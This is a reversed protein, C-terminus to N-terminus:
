TLKLYTSYPEDQIYIFPVLSLEDGSGISVTWTPRDTQDSRKAALLQEKTLKPQEETLAFLVLPGYMLAVVNPRQADVAELRLSTPLTVEVQDGNNWVREVKAFTGAAVTQTQEDNVKITANDAWPPIRFSLRFNAPDETRVVFRATSAVPYETCQEIKVLKGNQQWSAKSNVYLNVLLGDASQFYANKQYDCAVQPLTGACCPCNDKHYVKKGHFNYDSYYFTRGDAQLPKAGLVTNYMVREISDGYKPDGSIRLLYRALKFHAYSGCPTEFSSHTSDLSEGLRGTGAETFTEDPGWGGTAYSQNAIIDFANTAAKLHAKSGLVLYMQAASGLANAHSYAHKGALANEGRSLPMFFKEDSMFRKALDLYRDGGGQLYAIFMNEPLTYSEDWTYSIDRGAPAPEHDMARPPLFPMVTDTTKQLAQWAEQNGTFMYADLLGRLLKDYTYTPFRANEYFKPSITASYGRVLGAVRDKLRPDQTIAYARALASLWQGFCHGPAFGRWDQSQWDYDAFNEYWGGMEKGPAPLGARERYPKLMTDDSIQMLTDITSIFQTKLPSEGLQVQGYDLESLAPTIAPQPLSTSPSVAAQSRLWWLSSGALPAAIALGGLAKLFNRRNTGAPKLGRENDEPASM